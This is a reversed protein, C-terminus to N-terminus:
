PLVPGEDVSGRVPSGNAVSKGITVTRSMTRVCSRSSSWRSISVSCADTPAESPPMCDSMSAAMAGSRTRLITLMEAHM